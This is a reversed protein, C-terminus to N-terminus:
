RNKLQEIKNIITIKDNQTKAFDLAQEYHKLAKATDIGTFLYGLLSHYFHNGSLEIKEAEVIAEKKGNAKSLAFTRNLAAMPSYEIRLLQNYLQLINEWKENTDTKHTHWYAIAAELHYKSIKNGIAAQNLYHSGKEILENNWLSTDQDNYLILEGKENTRADFRSSHFCMLSLLASVNPTNTLKNEKLLYVLRMAEICLDKRIRDRICM